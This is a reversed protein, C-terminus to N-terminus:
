IWYGSSTTQALISEQMTNAEQRTLKREVVLRELIDVVRVPKLPGSLFATASTRDGPQGHFYVCTLRWAKVV